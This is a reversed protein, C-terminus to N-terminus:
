HIDTFCLHLRMCFWLFGVYIIFWYGPSCQERLPPVHNELWSKSLDSCHHTFDNLLIEFSHCSPDIEILRKRAYRIITTEAKSLFFSNLNDAENVGMHYKSGWATGIQFQPLFLNCAKEILTPFIIRKRFQPFYHLIFTHQFKEFMEFLLCWNM